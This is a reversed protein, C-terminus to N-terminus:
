HRKSRRTFLLLLVLCGAAILWTQQDVARLSNLVSSGVDRASGGLPVNAGAGAYEGLAQAFLIMRSFDHGTDREPALMIEGRATRAHRASTSPSQAAAAIM